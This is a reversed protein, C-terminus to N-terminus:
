FVSGFLDSLISNTKEKKSYSPCFEIINGHPIEKGSTCEYYWEGNNSRIKKHACTYCSKRDYNDTCKIEHDRIEEETGMQSCYDCKFVPKM